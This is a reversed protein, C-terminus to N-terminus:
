FGKGPTIRHWTFGFGPIGSIPHTYTGDANKQVKGCFEREVLLCLTGDARANWIGPYSSELREVAIEGRADFYVRGPRGSDINNFDVTNGTILAKLEDLSLFTQAMTPASSAALAAFACALLFSLPIRM